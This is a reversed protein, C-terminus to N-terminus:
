GARPPEKSGIYVSAPAVIKELEIGYNDHIKFVMPKPESEKPYEMTVKFEGVLDDATDSYYNAAQKHPPQTDDYGSPIPKSPSVIYGGNRGQTEFLWKIEESM